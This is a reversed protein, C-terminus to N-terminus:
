AHTHERMPTAEGNHGISRTTADLVFELDSMDQDYWNRRVVGAAYAIGGILLGFVTSTFAIELNGALSSLNDSALGRLAPGLPLLTGVLGLMPGVRTAFTLVSLRRAMDIELDDLCKRAGAGPRDAARFWAQFRAPYESLPLRTFDAADAHGAKLNALFKRWAAHSQVRGLAERALGGLMWLTAAMMAVLVLLIPLLLVGTIAFLLEVLRDTM